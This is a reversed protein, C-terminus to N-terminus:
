FVSSGTILFYWLCYLCMMENSSDPFNQCGIEFVRRHGGGTICSRLCWWWIGIQACGALMGWSRFAEWMEGLDINESDQDNVPRMGVTLHCASILLTAPLLCPGLMWFGCWVLCFPLPRSDEFQVAQMQVNTCVGVVSWCISKCHKM